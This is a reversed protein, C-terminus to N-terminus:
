GQLRARRRARSRQVARTIVPPLVDIAVRRVKSRTSRRRPAAPAPASAVPPAVPAVPAVPEEPKPEEYYKSFPFDPAKMGRSRLRVIRHGAAQQISLDCDEREQAMTILEDQIPEPDDWTAYLKQTSLCIPRLGRNLVAEWAAISVGPTHESRFDDLVVIGGPLLIDRAAGIDGYVHEYLHSADIHVFRSSKAEVEDAVVSSPAQLVRPLEDHFSLYNREFAERTLTAYSKATEAGNAQDPAESEFLDCVTFKEGDRLHHGLFIASKGMFVGLELLDGREGREEQRALLKEFLVQDLPPFWGRVDNLERPRPKDEYATTM